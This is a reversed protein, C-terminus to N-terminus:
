PLVRTLGRALASAIFLKILDTAARKPKGGAANAGFARQCGRRFLPSRTKAFIMRGDM